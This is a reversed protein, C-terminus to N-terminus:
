KGDCGARRICALDSAAFPANYLSVPGGTHPMAPYLIRGDPPNAQQTYQLTM